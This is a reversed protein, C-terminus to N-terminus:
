YSGPGHAGDGLKHVAAQPEEEWEDRIDGVVEGLIDEITILGEFSGWEDVVM